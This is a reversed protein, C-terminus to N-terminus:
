AHGDVQEWEKQIKQTEVRQHTPQPPPLSIGLMGLVTIGEEMSRILHTAGNRSLVIRTPFGWRYMIDNKRLAITVPALRRRAQLTAQSLDTFLKVQQFPDPLQQLKRATLMLEEKVHFFHIRAITDRPVADPLGKPKPLRHARDIILDHTTTSPLVAKILSQIYSALESPVVSEPIGRFKVNNRRNRDELDALKAKLSEVEDELQNHSDVLSNHATSFEGMKNEVHNVRDGVEELAEMQKNITATFSSHISSRLALMMEKIFSESAAQDSTPFGALLDDAPIDNLDSESAVERSSDSMSDLRPRHKEPSRTSPSASGKDQPSERSTIKPPDPKDSGRKAGSARHGWVSQQPSKSPINTAGPASPCAGPGSTGRTFRARPAGTPKKASASGETSGPRDPHVYFDTMCLSKGKMKQRRASAM